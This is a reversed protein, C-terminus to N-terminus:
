ETPTFFDFKSKVWSLVEKYEADDLMTYCKDGIKLYDRYFLVITETGNIVKERPNYTICYTWNKDMADPDELVAFEMYAISKLSDIESDVYVVTGDNLEMKAVASDKINDFLLTEKDKMCGFLSLSILLCAMLAMVKKM